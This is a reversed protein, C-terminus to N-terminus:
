VITITVRFPSTITVRQGARATGLFRGRSTYILVVGGTPPQGGGGGGPLQAPMTGTYFLSPGATRGKFSWAYGKREGPKTGSTQKYTFELGGRPDGVLRVQGEFDLALLVFRRGQMKVFQSAVAPRDGAYFGTLEQEYGAGHVTVAAVVDLSPTYITGDLLSWTAGPVLQVDGLLSLEDEDLDPLPLLAAVPVFFLAQLGALKPGDYSLVDSM